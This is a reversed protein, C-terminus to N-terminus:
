IGMWRPTYTLTGYSKAATTPAIGPELEVKLTLKTFEGPVMERYAAGRWASLVASQGSYATGAYEYYPQKNFYWTAGQRMTYGAAISTGKNPMAKWKLVTEDPLSYSGFKPYRDITLTLYADATTTYTETNGTPFKASVEDIVALTDGTVNPLWILEIYGDEASYSYGTAELYVKSSEFFPNLCDITATVTTPEYINGENVKCETVIGSITRSDSHIYAILVTVTSGVAFVKYAEDRKAATPPAELTIGLQRVGNHSGMLIGGQPTTLETLSTSFPMSGFGDLGDSPIRWDNAGSSNTVQIKASNDSNTITLSFNKSAM